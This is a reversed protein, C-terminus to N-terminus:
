CRSSAYAAASIVELGQVCRDAARKHAFDGLARSVALEGAVRGLAVHSGAAEIRRRETRDDPKHDRSLALARGGSRSLVARSDGLNAVALWGPGLLALV